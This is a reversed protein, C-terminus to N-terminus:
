RVIRPDTIIGFLYSPGQYGRQKFISISPSVVTVADEVDRRPISWNTNHLCIRDGNMHYSFPIGTVTYFTEGAHAAVRHWVSHATMAAYNGRKGLLNGPPQRVAPIM